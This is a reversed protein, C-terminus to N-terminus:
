HCHPRTGSPTRDSESRETWSDWCRSLRVIDAPTLSGPSGSPWNVSASAIAYFSVHAKLWGRSGDRGLHEGLHQLSTLGDLELLDAHVTLTSSVPSPRRDFRRGAARRWRRSRRRQTEATESSWSGRPRTFIRLKADQLNPHISSIKAAIESNFKSSTITM